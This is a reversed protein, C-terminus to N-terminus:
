LPDEGIPISASPPNLKVRIRTRLGNLDLVGNERDYELNVVRDSLNNDKLAITEGTAEDLVEVLLGQKGGQWRDRVRSIMVLVPLRYHPMRFISRQPLTRKWLVEGSAADVAFLDGQVNEAPPFSDSAYYSFLREVPMQVSRQLNVYFRDGHRFARVYNLNKLDEAPISLDLLLKGAAVDRIQLRSPPQPGAKDSTDSKEPPILVVLENEPTIASYIRHIVPEDFILENRAFDWIRMRRGDGTNKIYFLKSGFIRRIQGTDVDLEGHHLEEGTDTRYVTYSSRDAAFLVLVESDGFLGAYPDSILGSSPDIDARKWLTKGTIPDVVILERQGQFACFDIGAPGVRLIHEHAPENGLKATWLPKEDQFELLSVGTMGNNSGVPFFHGVHAGKSLSPYSNRQPIRVKGQILGATRDIVAVLSEPEDDTEDDVWGKDLLQLSSGPLLSFERRYQGFADLLDADASTWREEVIEVASTKQVPLERRRIAKALMSQEPLSAVFSGPSGGNKLPVNRFRLDALEEALVAAESYLGLQNWLEVLRRTAEAAVVPDRSERNRLWLFEARQFEGRARAVEAFQQRISASQPWSDYLALFRSMEPADGSHLVALCEQEILRDVRALQSADLEDRIRKMVQRAYSRPAILHDANGPWPLPDDFNLDVLDHASQLSGIPNGTRLQHEAKRMLFRGRDAPSSVLTELEDLIPLAFDPETEIQRFLLERLLFEGHPRLDHSKGGALVTELNTKAAALEGLNLQLEAALLRTPLDEPAEILRNRIQRHLLEGTQPFAIIGAPGCALIQDGAPILNGTRWGEPMRRASLRARTTLESLNLGQALQQSNRWGSLGIEQGSTLDITAIRGSDLPLLYRGSAFIGQGAPTGFRAIWAKEGSASSLGRCYRQGVVFVMEDTVAGIYEGDERPTTWLRRGTRLDVCHIESSQRPLLVIRNGHIKPASPFGASGWSKRFRDRWGRSDHQYLEESYCYSWLLVGTMADVGVLLGTQTPCVLVGDGFAIPCALPYRSQDVDFAEDAFAIGQKWLLKGTEADLSVLNLQNRFETIAYLRGDLPLPPGRFFHGQLAPESSASDGEGGVSWVPRVDRSIAPRMPLAILQNSRRPAIPKASASESALEPAASDLLMHDIAYIREGDSSLQGLVSNEAYAAQVQTYHSARSSYVGSKGHKEDLRDIERQLSTQCAYRWNHAGTARDVCRIGRFDRYIVSDNVVIPFLATALPELAKGQREKWLDIAKILAPSAQEGFSAVWTPNLFPTTAPVSETRDWGGQFVNWFARRPTEADAPIPPIADLRATSTAVRYVRNEAVRVLPAPRPTQKEALKRALQRKARMANTVRKAHRPHSELSEWARAALEFYGHDFWRTACWHTAQFGHVTHFYRRAVREYGQPNWNRAAEKLLLGAEADVMDEYIERGRSDLGEILRSAESRLSALHGDSKRWVFLDEDFDLIRQLHAAATSLDGQELATQAHYLLRERDRDRYMLLNIARTEEDSPSPPEEAQAPAEAPIGLVPALWIASSPVIGARVSWSVGFVGAVLSLGAAAVVRQRFTKSLLSNRRSIVSLIM